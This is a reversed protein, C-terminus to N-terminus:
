KVTFNSWSFTGSGAGGAIAILGHKTAGQMDSSSTSLISSGDIYATINSGSTQLRFNKTAGNSWTSAASAVVTPVGSVYKRLEFGSSATQYWFAWYNSSDVWRFALGALFNPVFTATVHCQIVVDSSGSEALTVTTGSSALTVSANNNQITTVSGFGTFWGPGINMSHATLATGNSDVFTDLLLVRQAFGFPTSGPIQAKAGDTVFLGLSSMLVYKIISIKM